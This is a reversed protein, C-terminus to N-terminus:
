RTCHHSPSSAPPGSRRHLERYCSKRDILAESACCHEHLFIGRLHFLYSVIRNTHTAKGESVSGGFRTGVGERREEWGEGERGSERVGM